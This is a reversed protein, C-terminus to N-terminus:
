VSLNRESLIELIQPTTSGIAPLLWTEELSDSAWRCLRSRGVRCVTSATFHASFATALTVVWVGAVTTVSLVERTEADNGNTHVIGLYDLEREFEARDGNPTIHVIAGSVLAAKYAREPEVWWFPRLRGRCAEFLQIIKWLAARQMATYAMSYGMRHRPGQLSAVLARGVFDRDQLREYTIEFPEIRNPEKGLTPYTLFDTYGSPTDTASAPLASTGAIEDFSATVISHNEANEDPIIAVSAESLPHVFVMPVAWAPNDATTPDELDIFTTAKAAIGNLDWASVRCKADNYVIFVGAGQFWRGLSFDGFVRTAGSAVPDLRVSDCLLPVATAESLVDRLYSQLDVLQANPVSWSFEVVRTPRDGLGLRHEDLTGPNFEVQTQFTTTVQCGKIWNHNFLAINAPFAPRVIVNTLRGLVEAAVRSTRLQSVAASAESFVAEIGFRHVDLEKLGLGAVEGVMRSVRLQSVAASAEAFVVETGFRMTEQPRFHDGVVEGNMRVTRLQSVAASAEAFVVETGFRTGQFGAPAAGLVEGCMRGTQLDVM